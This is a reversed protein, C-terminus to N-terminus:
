QPQSNRIPTEAVECVWSRARVNLFLWGCLAQEKRNKKSSVSISVGSTGKDVDVGCCSVILAAGEHTGHKDTTSCLTCRGQLGIRPSYNSRTTEIFM